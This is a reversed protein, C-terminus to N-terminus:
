IRNHIYVYIYMKLIITGMYNGFWCCSIECFFPSESSCIGFFCVGLLSFVLKVLNMLMLGSNWGRQNCRICLIFSTTATCRQSWTASRCLRWRPQWMGHMHREGVYGDPPGDVHKGLAEFEPKLSSAQFDTSPSKPIPTIARSFYTYIYIYM